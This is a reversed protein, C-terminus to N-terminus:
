QGKEVPYGKNVWDTGFDQPIYLVKVNAFGMGHLAAYAPTVNPCRTWPCCGCYLIIPASHKMSSVRKKLADIAEPSTGPGIYESGPIHAQQYLVRFGVQIILPKPSPTARIMRALDAPQILAPEDHNAKSSSSDQASLALSFLTIILIVLFLLSSDSSRKM